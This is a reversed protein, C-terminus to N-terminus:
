LAKSLATAPETRTDLQPMRADNSPASAESPSDSTVALPEAITVPGFSVSKESSNKARQTRM